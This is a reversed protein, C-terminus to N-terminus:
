SVIQKAQQFLPHADLCIRVLHMVGVYARFHQSLEDLVDAEPLGVERGMEAAERYARRGQEQYYDSVHSFPVVLPGVQMLLRDPRAAQRLVGSLSEPFLGSTFLAYDGIHRELELRWPTTAAPWRSGEILMEAIDALRHGRTDRIRYLTDARVFRALIEESLYSRVRADAAEAEALHAERFAWRTAERFLARLPHDTPITATESM